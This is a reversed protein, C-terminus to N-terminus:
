PAHHSGSILSPVILGNTASLWNNHTSKRGQPHILYINCVIFCAVQNQILGNTKNYNNFVKDIPRLASPLSVVVSVTFNYSVCFFAIGSWDVCILTAAGSALPM